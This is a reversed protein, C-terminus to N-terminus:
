QGFKTGQVILSRSQLAQSESVEDTTAPRLEHVTTIVKGDIVCNLRYTSSEDDDDPILEEDMAVPLEQFETSFLVGVAFSTDKDAVRNANSYGEVRDRYKAAFDLAAKFAQSSIAVADKEDSESVDVDTLRQDKSREYELVAEDKVAGAKFVHVAKYMRGKHETHFLVRQEADADYLVTNTQEDPASAAAPTESLDTVQHNQGNM